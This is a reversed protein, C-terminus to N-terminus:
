TRYRVSMRLTMQYFREGLFRRGSPFPASMAVCISDVGRGFLDLALECLCFASACGSISEPAMILPVRCSTSGSVSSRRRSSMAVIQRSIYPGEGEVVERVSREVSRMQQLFYFDGTRNKSQDLREHMWASARRRRGLPAVGTRRGSRPRLRGDIRPSRRAVSEQEARPGARVGARANAPTRSVRDCNADVAVVNAIGVRDAEERPASAGLRRPTRGM